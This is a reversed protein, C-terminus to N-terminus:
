KTLKNAWIDGCEFCLYGADKFEPKIINDEDDFYDLQIQEETGQLNDYCDDCM